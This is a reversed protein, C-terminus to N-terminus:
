PRVRLVLIAVDDPAESDPDAVAEIFRDATAHADLGTCTRLFGLLESEGFPHSRRSDILGDTFFVVSDGRDLEISRDELEVEEFIGLLTGPVGITEARGDGHLVLPLPHGGCSVTLRAGEARPQLLAFAVTSFREGDERRLAESMTALVASPTRQHVAVARLTHRAFGTLAAAEVGKGCVDGIAVAWEGERIEFVDYFDGGVENREIAAPQYLAAAEIGPIQPLEPPLLSRELTRAIHSREEYLRANDIALAARRALDEAFELDSEDFRRGSEASAFTVAGIARGRAVLPVIMASRLGLSRAMELQEPDRVGAELMEDTIEPYIVSRSTRVVEHIGGPESPHPPFRYRFEKATAIKEPDSHTVEISQVSGDPEVVEVSCWDAVRPVALKALKSLTKRYNLSAALVVSADALFSLRENASEAEARASRENALLEARIQESRRRDSIDRIYATFLLQGPDDVRTVTVEVPVEQGDARLADLEIRRGIITAEGTEVYRALSARHRDRDAPPILFSALESGIVDAARYGFMDEAAPNFDVVLGDADMSVIADQASQLIASKRAESERVVAEVHKREVFQGIQSGITTMMQLLEEDPERIDHSFFELVGLVEEGLRIPFALASHLGDRAAPSARPFSDEKTVDDIWVSRNEEWVRGPLGLGPVPAFDRTAQLFSTAREPIAAWTGACRLIWRRRDVFYVAGLEWGLSEGVASLIRPTAEDLTESEALLRAVAHQAILRQEAEKQATVDTCVGVMRVPRDDEDTLLRARASIWRMVGNPLIIRYEAAYDSRESVAGAIKELVSGRDEPHMDSKYAEFTGPFTGPELGHIRELSESWRVTGEDITWEWTGMGGAALALRLHEESRRLADEASRRDRESVDIEFWVHTTPEVEIGWRSSLQEVLFLGWGGPLDAGGSRARHAFGEGADLVDVRVREPTADLLVRIGADSGNPGHRVANTVVESILLGLNAALDAALPPDLEELLRRAESAAEPAVPLRRELNM